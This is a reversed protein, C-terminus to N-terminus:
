STASWNSTEMVVASSPTDIYTTPRPRPGMNEAGSDSTKPRFITYKTLRGRNMSNVSPAPKALFMAVSATQRVSAPIKPPGASATEAPENTSMQSRLVEPEATVTCANAVKM